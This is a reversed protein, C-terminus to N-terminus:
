TSYAVIPQLFHNASPCLGSEEVLESAPFVPRNHATDCHRSQRKNEMRESRHQSRSWGM